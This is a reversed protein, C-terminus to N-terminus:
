RIDKRGRAGWQARENEMLMDFGRSNLDSVKGTPWLV